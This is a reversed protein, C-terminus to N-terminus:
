HGLAIAINLDHQVVFIVANDGQALQGGFPPDSERKPADAGSGEPQGQRAARAAEGGRGQEERGRLM